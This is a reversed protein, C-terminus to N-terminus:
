AVVRVGGAKDMREVFDALRDTQAHIEPLTEHVWHCNACGLECKADIEPKARRVFTAPCSWSLLNAIGYRKWLRPLGAAVRDTVMKKESHMWHWAHEEGKKVERACYFCCKSAKWGNNLVANEEIYERHRRAEKERRTTEPMTTSDVGSHTSHTPELLHCFSCRPVTKLYERWMDDPGYGNGAWWMPSLVGGIKDNPDHDCQMAKSLQGCTACERKALDDRIRQAMARCAAAKSNPGSRRSTNFSARCRFCRVTRLKEITKMAKAREDATAEADAVLAVALEYREFRDRTIRPDPACEAIPIHIRKCQTCKDVVLTGNTPDTCVVSPVTSKTDVVGRRAACASAFAAGVSGHKFVSHGTANAQQGEIFQQSMWGKRGTEWTVNVVNTKYGPNGKNNKAVAWFRPLNGYATDMRIDSDWAHGDDPEEKAVVPPAAPLTFWSEDDSDDESDDLPRKPASM